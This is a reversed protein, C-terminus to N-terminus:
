QAGFFIAEASGAQDGDTAVHSALAVQVGARSADGGLALIQAGLELACRVLDDPEEDMEGLLDTLQQGAQAQARDLFGDAPDIQQPLRVHEVADVQRRDQGIGIRAARLRAAAHLRAVVPGLILFREVFSQEAIGMRRQGIARSELGRPDNATPVSGDSRADGALDARTAQLWRGFLAANARQREELYAEHATGALGKAGEGSVSHAQGEFTLGVVIEAFAHAAAFDYEHGGIHRPKCRLLVRDDAVGDQVARGTAPQERCSAGPLPEAHAVRAGRGHDFADAIVAALVHCAAGDQHQAIRPAVEARAHGIADRIHEVFSALERCLEVVLQDM